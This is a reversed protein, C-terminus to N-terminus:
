AVTWPTAFLPVHSLSKVKVKLLSPWSFGRSYSIAVWELIRRQFIGHVFSDPLSWNMSDWYTLSLHDSTVERNNKKKKLWNEWVNVQLYTMYNLLAFYTCLLSKTKFFTVSFMIFHDELSASPTALTPCLKIVLVVVFVSHSVERYAWHYVTTRCYLLHPNSEQTLFIRQLLFHCGVGINKGPFDWSCLLM